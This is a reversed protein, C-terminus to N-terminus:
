QRVVSQKLFVPYIPVSFLFFEGLSLTHLSFSLTTSMRVIVNRVHLSRRFFSFLHLKKYICIRLPSTKLSGYLHDVLNEM